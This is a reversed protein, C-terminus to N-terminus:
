RRALRALLKKLHGFERNALQADRVAFREFTRWHMGKPKCPEGFLDSVDDGLRHRLAWRQAFIRNSGGVRQSAYTPRPKIAERHCFQEIGNWKFLTLARRGSCPCRMYWRRGGYHLPISSLAIACTVKKREGERNKTAYTLTLTGSEDGLVSRYNVAGIKEGTYSDTWRWSGSTEGGPRLANSSFMRRLDLKLASEIHPRWGYNSM